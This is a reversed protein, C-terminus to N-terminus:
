DMAPIFIIVDHRSVLKIAVDDGTKVNSGILCVLTLHYESVLRGEDKFRRLCVFSPPSICSVRIYRELPEAEVSKSSNLNAVM